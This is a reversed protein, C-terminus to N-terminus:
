VHARGIKKWGDEGSYSKAKRLGEKLVVGQTEDIRTQKKDCLAVIEVNDIHVIRKVAALGREGLGIFGIRLNEIPASAFGSMNHNKKARLSASKNSLEDARTTSVGFALSGTIVSANKLFERRNKNM